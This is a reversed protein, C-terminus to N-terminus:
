LKSKKSEIFVSFNDKAEHYLNELIRYWVEKVRKSTAKHGCDQIAEQITDIIVSQDVWECLKSYTKQNM